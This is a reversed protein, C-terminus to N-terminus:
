PGAIISDEAPMGIFRRAFAMFGCTPLPRAFYFGQVENCGEDQLVALQDVSEVGEAIVRFGLEHGLSIITRLIIRDSQSNPVDRVFGKDVKLRDVKLQRLVHLSSQGVGFDDISISPGLARIRMIDGRVLDFDHMVASETLEIDLRTPDVGTEQLTHAILNPIGRRAFQRASLNISVRLDLGQDHWHRATRCAQFLVWEDIATILGSEEAYPLFAGPPVVTGDPRRWRILAEGGVMRGSSIDIQPQFELFFQQAALANRLEIALLANKRAVTLMDERFFAVGRRGTRNGYQAAIGARHLLDHYERGDFPFRAVGVNVTLNINQGEVLLPAGLQALVQRALAEIEHPAGVNCQLIAFGSAGFRRVIHDHGLISRLRNACVAMLKRGASPSFASCVADFSDINVMHLAVTSERAVRRKMDQQVLIQGPLSWARDIRNYLSELAQAAEPRWRALALVWRMRLTRATEGMDPTLVDAAGAELARALAAADCKRTLVVLKAGPASRGLDHLLEITSSDVVDSSIVIISPKQRLASSAPARPEPVKIDFAKRMWDMLSDRSAFREVVARGDLIGNPILSSASDVSGPQVVAITTM